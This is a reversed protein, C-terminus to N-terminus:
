LFHEINLEKMKDEFYAIIYKKRQMKKVGIRGGKGGEGYAEETYQAINQTTVESNPLGSIRRFNGSLIM